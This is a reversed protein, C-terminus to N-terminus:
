FKNFRQLGHMSTMEFRCLKHPISHHPVNVTLENRATVPFDGTMIPVRRKTKREHTLPEDTLPEAM